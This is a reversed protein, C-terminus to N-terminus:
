ARGKGYKRGRKGMRVRIKKKEREEEGGKFKWMTDREYM